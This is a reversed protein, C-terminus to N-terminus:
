FCEIRRTTVISGTCMGCGTMALDTGGVIDAEAFENGAFLAGAPNTADAHNRWQAALNGNVTAPAQEMLHSM